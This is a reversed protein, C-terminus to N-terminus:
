LIILEFGHTLWLPFSQSPLCLPPGQIPHEQWCRLWLIHWVHPSPTFPLFVGTLLFHGSSVMPSTTFIHCFLRAFFLAVLLLWPLAWLRWPGSFGPHLAPPLSFYGLFTFVELSSFCCCCGVNCFDGLPEGLCLVMAPLKTLDGLSM